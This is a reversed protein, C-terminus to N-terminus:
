ATPSGTTWRATRPRIRTTSTTRTPTRTSSHSVSPSDRSAARRGRAGTSSGTEWPPGALANASYSYGLGDFSGTTSVTGDDALGPHDPAAYTSGLSLQKIGWGEGSIPHPEADGALTTVGATTTAQFLNLTASDDTAWIPWNGNNDAQGTSSVLPYDATFGQGVVRVAPKGTPLQTVDPVMDIDGTNLDRVVVGTGTVGPYEGGALFQTTDWTWDSSDASILTPSGFALGGSAPPYLWLQTQGDWREMTLLDPRNGPTTPIAVM